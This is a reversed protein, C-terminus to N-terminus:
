QEVPMPFALPKESLGSVSVGGTKTVLTRKETNGKAEDNM